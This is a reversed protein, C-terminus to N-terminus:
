GNMADEEQEEHMEGFSPVSGDASIKRSKSLVALKEDLDSQPLFGDSNGGNGGQDRM